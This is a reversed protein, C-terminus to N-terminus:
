LLQLRVVATFHWFPSTYMNGPFQLFTGIFAQQECMLLSLPLMMISFTSCPGFTNRQGVPWPQPASTGHCHQSLRKHRLRLLFLLHAQSELASAEKREGQGAKTDSGLPLRPSAPFRCAEQQRQSGELLSVATGTLRQCVALQRSCSCDRPQTDRHRRRPM